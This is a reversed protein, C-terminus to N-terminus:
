FVLNIGFVFSRTKPYAAWDIGPTLGGNPQRNVEPDFGSYKTFTYINYATAYVHCRSIGFKKILSTNLSYGLTINNIRLFSGDEVFESSTLTMNSEPGQTYAAHTTAKSNLAKLANPESIFNGDQDIYTFRNVFAGAQNQNTQYSALLRGTSYNLVDNGYVWNVFISLDFNKYTFTNNMGGYHKPYADGIITRDDPTILGDGNVDKYRTSGPQFTARTLSSLSRVTSKLTYTYRGTAADLVADFDDVGYFGDYVYGYMLGVPKGVQVRYDEIYSGVGSKFIMYDDASGTVLSLVKNRNFSINFDTSWRFSKNSINVTNITLELGRNRTTGINRTQTLFGTTSPISATLLLDKTSNNYLEASGSIRNKLFGFDVGINSSITTEWKLNPNALVGAYLTPIETSGNTYWNSQYSSVYRNNGIRNNGSKGYSARLKLDSIIVNGKMFDEQSIRWAGSISPFYGFRNEKAFKSSGDTRLTATFLYKNDYGYFLRAFYSVLGEESYASIPKQPLNGLSLDYIGFNDVPFQRNEARLARSDSYIMENGIMANISHVDFNKQYSLTNTSQWKFSEGYQQSGFPGGRSSSASSNQDDFSDFRSNKLTGSGLVRLVLNDTLKYNLTLNADLNRDVSYRTQSQQTVKPNRLSNSIPDDMANQLEEDTSTVGAVPRYLLSNQLTSGATIDGNKRNDYLLVNLSLDLKNNIKQDFKFRINNRTNNTNILIGDEYNHTYSVMFSNNEGGGSITINQNHNLAKGGFMIEQWDIGRTSYTSNFDAFNGYNTTFTALSTTGARLAMEYQMKVYDLTNLVSVKKPLERFGVYADFTILNKGKKGSRTTILIVGNAGRSGYISTASADKLVEISEIDSASLSKLGISSEFGDIIYLPTNDQTISMGGRIKIDVDSGPSGDQTTVQVGAVRGTLAEAASAVPTRELEKGKVSSISGTLDSKRQTGYGVVVVEDLTKMSEVLRITIKNTNNVAVEQKEYGMYSVELIANPSSVQITFSGNVDTVAGTTFGKEKVSVGILTELSKASIVTGSVKFKEAVSNPSLVILNNDLVKFNFNNAKALDSLIKVVPTKEGTVKVNQQMDFQETRYLFRYNTSAEIKQIVTELTLSKQKFTIEVDQSYANSAIVPFISVLLLFASIKMTRIIQTTHKSILVSRTFIKM